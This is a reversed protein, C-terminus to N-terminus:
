REHKCVYIVYTSLFRIFPIKYALTDIIDILWIPIKTNERVIPFIGIHYMAVIELGSKRVMQFVDNVKLTNFSNRDKGILWYYFRVMCAAISSHNMHVNFVLCGDEKLIWSLVKMTQERLEHQANKFFRFATILDFYEGEFINNKTLDVKILKSKKVKKFGVELMTESVDVGISESAYKELFCIIRGTGCAFDLYKINNNNVLYKEVIENLVKKELSWIYKRYPRDTFSKDYPIPKDPSTHSNRYDINDQMISWIIAAKLISFNKLPIIIFFVWAAKKAAGRFM